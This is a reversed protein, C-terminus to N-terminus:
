PWSTESKVSASSWFLYVRYEMFDSSTTTLIWTSSPSTVASSVSRYCM